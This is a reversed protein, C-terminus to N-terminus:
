YDLVLDESLVELLLYGYKSTEPPPDSVGPMLDYREVRLIYEYEHRRAFNEINGYYPQDNVVICADSIPVNERCDVRGADVTIEVVSGQAPTQSVVELLRRTGDSYNEYRILYDYGGRFEFGSIAGRRPVGNVLLCLEESGPCTVRAPAVTAEIVEGSVSVKSVEEILRYGSRGPTDQPIVAQGPYADYEEIRLVYEYGPEHTFGDIEHYFQRGDVVLCMRQFPGYCEQRAPGVSVELTPAAQASKPDSTVELTSATQSSKQVSSFEPASDAQKSQAQFAAFLSIVILVLAAPYLVKKSISFM